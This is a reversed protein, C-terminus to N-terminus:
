SCMFTTTSFEIVFGMFGDRCTMDYCVVGSEREKLQEGKVYTSCDTVGPPWGQGEGQGESEVGRPYNNIWM